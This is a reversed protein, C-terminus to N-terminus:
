LCICGFVCQLLAFLKQVVHCCMGVCFNSIEGGFHDKVHMRICGVEGDGSCAASGWDNEKEAGEWLCAFGDKEITCYM